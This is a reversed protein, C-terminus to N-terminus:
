IINYNIGVSFRFGAHSNSDYYRSLVQPYSSYSRNEYSMTSSLSVNDEVFFDFSAQLVHEFDVNYYSEGTSYFDNTVRRAFSYSGILRVREGVEYTLYISSAIGFHTRARKAPFDASASARVHTSLSISHGWEFGIRHLFVHDAEYTNYSQSLSVERAYRRQWQREGFLYFFRMGFVRPEIGERFAELIRASSYPSISIVGLKQLEEVIDKVLYKEYREFNTTYERITAVRDVLGKMEESTLERVTLGDERLREIIRFARFVFTGDRMRGYGFGLFAEGALDNSWYVSESSSSLVTDKALYNEKTYDGHYTGFAKGLIHLGDEQLYHQYEWSGNMSAGKQVRRQEQHQIFTGSSNSNGENHNGSYTAYAQLQITQDHNEKSHFFLFRGNLSVGGSLSNDDAYVPNNSYSDSEHNDSNLDGYFGGKLDIAKTEPYRFDSISISDQAFVHVSSAFLLATILRSSKSLPNM